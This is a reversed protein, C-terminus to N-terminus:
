LWKTVTRMTDYLHKAKKLRNTLSGPRRAKGLDQLVVQATNHGPVGTIGGGPHTGSGTLYLGEVPTRYGSLGIAPRFAMTQDIAMDVHFANGHINGTIRERDLPTTMVHGLIHDGVNPAYASFTDIMRRSEEARATDWTRGDSFAYPAFTSLWLTHKGPPAMSPDAYSPVACMLAPLRAPIGSEIDRFAQDLAVESPVLNINAVLIEEAPGHRPFEPCANLAADVKVLSTNSVSIQQVRRMLTPELHGEDVLGTFLRRADIASIVAKRARIVGHGEAEVGVARGGEVLVRTVPARTLVQGGHHGIMRGLSVSLMGSGGRPRAMGVLHSVPLLSSALVAGVSAPATGVQVTFWNLMARMHPSEFWHNVMHKPNGLLTKLVSEAGVGLAGAMESFPPPPIFDFPALLELIQRWMEIYEPYAAADRASFRAIEQATRQVDRYIILSEGDPFLFAYLPDHWIYELGFRELELDQLITTGHINIHEIGGRNFTFGPILEESTACGGLVGARELVVVQEGARALYGGCVLGNHGGGIVIVDCDPM